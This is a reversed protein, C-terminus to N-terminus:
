SPLLLWCHIIISVRVVRAVIPHTCHLREFLLWRQPSEPTLLWTPELLNIPITPLPVDLLFVVDHLSFAVGEIVENRYNSADDVKGNGRLLPDNKVSSARVDKELPLAPLLRPM